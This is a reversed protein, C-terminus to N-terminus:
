AAESLGPGIWIDPPRLTVVNGDGVVGAFTEIQVYGRLFGGTPFRDVFGAAGQVVQTDRSSWTGPPTVSPAATPLWWFVAVGVAADAQVAPVTSGSSTFDVSYDAQTDGTITVTDAATDAVATVIAGVTVDNNIADALSTLVEDLDADGTTNYAVSNGDIIVTLTDGINLSSVSLVSTRTHTNLRLAINILTAPADGLPQGHTLTFPARTPAAETQKLWNPDRTALRIAIETAANFANSM